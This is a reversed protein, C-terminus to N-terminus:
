VGCLLGIALAISRAREGMVRAPLALLRLRQASRRVEALVEPSDAALQRRLLEAYRQPEDVLFRATTQVFLLWDRAQASHLPMSAGPDEELDIFGIRDACLTLNRAAAQSAYGGRRHLDLLAEAARALLAARQGRDATNKCQGALTPGLDSLWLEREGRRLISPVCAGLAHLRAIMAAETACAQEAAQAPAPQLAPLGLWRALGRALARRWRRETGAYRKRWAPVGACDVQEVRNGAM